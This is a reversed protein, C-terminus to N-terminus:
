FSYYIIKSQITNKKQFSNSTMSINIVGNGQLLKKIVDM